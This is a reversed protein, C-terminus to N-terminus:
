FFANCNMFFSEPFLSSLSPLPLSLNFLYLARICLSHLVNHVHLDFYLSKSGTPFIVGTHSYASMVQNLWDEYCMGKVDKKKAKHLASHSLSNKIPIDKVAFKSTAIARRHSQCPLCDHPLLVSFKVSRMPLIIALLKIVQHIGYALDGGGERGIGRGGGCVCVCVYVCM